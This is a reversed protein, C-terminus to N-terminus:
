DNESGTTTIDHALRKLPSNYSTILGLPKIIRLNFDGGATHRSKVTRVSMRNMEIDKKSIRWAMVFDANESIAKSYKVSEATLEQPQGGQTQQATGLQSATIIPLMIRRGMMKLERSANMLDQWHASKSRHTPEVLNLHDIVVAHIPMSRKIETVIRELRPVSIGFPIDILIFKGDNFGYKHKAEVTIKEKDFEKFREKAWQTFEHRKAVDIRYKLLRFFLLKNKHTSLSELEWMMNIPLRTVLALRRQIIQEYALEITFYVINLGLRNINEGVNLLMTSKYFGAPASFVTLESPRWGKTATDMEEYGTPIGTPNDSYFRKAVLMKDFEENMEYKSIDNFRVVNTLKDLDEQLKVVNERVNGINTENVSKEVTDFYNTTLFLNILQDILFEIKSDVDLKLIAKIFVRYTQFKEPDNLFDSRLFEKLAHKNPVESYNVFYDIIRKYLWKSLPNSLYKIDFKELTKILAQRDKLLLHLFRKELNINSFDHIAM